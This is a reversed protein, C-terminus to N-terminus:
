FFIQNLSPSFVISFSQNISAKQPLSSALKIKKSKFNEYSYRNYRRLTVKLKDLNIALGYGLYKILLPLSTSIEWSLMWLHLMGIKGQLEYRSTRSSSAWNSTAPPKLWRYQVWSTLIFQLVIISENNFKYTMTVLNMIKRTIQIWQM